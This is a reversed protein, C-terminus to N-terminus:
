KLYDALRYVYKKVLEREEETYHAWDVRVDQWAHRALSYSNDKNM